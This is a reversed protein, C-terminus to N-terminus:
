WLAPQYGEDLPRDGPRNADFLVLIVDVAETFTLGSTVDTGIYGKSTLRVWSSVTFYGERDHDLTVAFGVTTVVDDMDAGRAQEPVALPCESTIRAGGEGKSFEFM